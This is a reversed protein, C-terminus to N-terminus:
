ALDKSSSDLIVVPSDDDSAAREALSEYLLRYVESVTRSYTQSHRTEMGRGASAYLLWIVLIICVVYILSISM